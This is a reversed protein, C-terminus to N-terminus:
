SETKRLFKEDPLWMVATSQNLIVTERALLKSRLRAWTTIGFGSLLPYAVYYPLGKEYRAEAVRIEIPTFHKLRLTGNLTCKLEIPLERGEIGLIFDYGVTAPLQQVYYGAMVSAVYFSQEFEGGILKSNVKVASASM